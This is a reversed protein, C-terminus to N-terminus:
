SRFIINRLAHFFIVLRIGQEGFINKDFGGIKVFLKRMVIMAAGTVWDVQREKKYFSDHDVHYPKLFQGGPLDDLFSMWYFVQPLNPFFGVSQQISNDPNLILPGAVGIKTNDDLFRILKVLSNDILYADSNLFLLYRGRAEAAGQNNAIGFGLNKKNSILKAQPYRESILRPSDDASANDVVIIEFTVGKVFKFVSTLCKELLGKTNFSVIIISLAVTM